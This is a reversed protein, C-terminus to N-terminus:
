EGTIEGLWCIGAFEVLPRPVAGIREDRKAYSANPIVNTDRGGFFMAEM